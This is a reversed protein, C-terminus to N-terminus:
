GGYRLFRMSAVFSGFFGLVMGGFLITVVTKPPLFFVPIGAFWERMVPTLYLYLVNYLLVKYYLFFLFLVALGTGVFGQILGEIYFPVQISAPSAGVIHMIEIEEKRSSITLQLTNSIIFILGILLLGGMIWQTLRFVHVIASFTEVWEQGYQVEDIQRFQKLPFVVEKIRLSNRYGKKLQIEFSSPLVGPRIGELLDKQSGLKKQMFSLADEPSVYKVTEVGEMRRIKKLVDEVEGFPVGKKLYAVVEIKDEWIKLISTLNFAFLSFTSFILMSIGIIGITTLIPFLNGRMNQVARLIADSLFFKM